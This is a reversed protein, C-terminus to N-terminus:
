DNVQMSASLVKAIRESCEELHARTTDDLTVQKDTLATQIRTGIERLHMRALSRADPPVSVAGGFFMLMADGGQKEGLIIGSLKKVHERQLNRRVISSSLPRKETKSTGNALECWIGNTVGRFVEAVTFPQESKEAKIANNEIRALVAPSLLENLALRQISLIRENLPFDTSSPRAGWHSWRDVAMRRLLEPPFQFTKDSFIHEELFKLADRQKASAVPILPDRGKPDGRHDRHAYEGGIYKSILYAADGYQALLIDFAVRARQYGEGKNVVRDSLGKLLDEALVTRDTAFKMVDQGLDFLNTDPDATLFLDEDTGYEHGPEAGNSAIKQLETVEGETGGSLPKYGYQIAWYDYPGITSTFYDGQKVGQPALNVPNYDMVSGVLGKEHTIKIDHLQNNPLM